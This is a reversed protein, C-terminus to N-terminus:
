YFNNKEKNFTRTAERFSNWLDKNKDRPVNGIDIFKKKLEDVKQISNQWKNHNSIQSESIKKIKEILNM